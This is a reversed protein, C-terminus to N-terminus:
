QSCLTRFYEEQNDTQKAEELRKMQLAANREQEVQAFAEDLQDFQIHMDKIARETQIMWPEKNKSLWALKHGFVFYRLDDNTMLSEINQEFLEAAEEKTYATRRKQGFFKRTFAQSLERKRSMIFDLNVLFGEAILLQKTGDQISIEYKPKTAFLTLQILGQKIVFSDEKLSIIKKMQKHLRATDVVKEEQLQNFRTIWKDIRDKMRHLDRDEVKVFFGNYEKKKQDLFSRFLTTFEKENFVYDEKKNEKKFLLQLIGM